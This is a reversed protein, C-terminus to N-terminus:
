PRAPLGPLLLLPTAARHSCRNPAGAETSVHGSVREALNAKEGPPDIGRYQRPSGVNTDSIRRPHRGDTGPATHPLYRASRGDPSPSADGALRAAVDIPFRRLHM